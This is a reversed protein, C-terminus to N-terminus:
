CHFFYWVMSVRRRTRRKHHKRTMGQTRNDAILMLLISLSCKQCLHRWKNHSIVHDIMGKRDIRLIQHRLPNVARCCTQSVYMVFLQLNLWQHRLYKYLAVRGWMKVDGWTLSDLVTKSEPNWATSEQNWASSEQRKLPVKSEPNRSRYERNWLGPNWIGCAFNGWTGSEVLLFKVSEVIRIGKRPVILLQSFRDILYLICCLSDAM